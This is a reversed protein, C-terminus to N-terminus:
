SFILPYEVEGVLFVSGCILILDDSTAEQLVFHIATNVNSFSKGKLGISSAKESLEKESLARPIQAKTFYYTANHPLLKLVDIVDKDKAMGIIIHLHNYNTIELQNVIQKIGDVNHAVDLIITPHQHVIEWRGHLGTIKKVEKLAKKVVVTAINWGQLQMQHITELVTLINKTQYLGILDLIYTEIEKKHHCDINILLQHNKYEWDLVTWEKQAFHIPAKHKIAQQEFILETETLKEGIVVPVNNKIIGAKEYAIEALTNGLMPMHDYGINTIVSLVPQVINTSDLRGGLGVEVIAIEIQQQAFYEFAMAVTVEFFSPKIKKITHQIKKVFNIVFSESCMVGNVKIRERFDKLHPSTYLGTKYGSAQFIAALMHSTSGKGNTGAIHISKFTTHPNGLVACLEIINFLDKKYAITGIRSYMPLQDYLFAVTQKYTM